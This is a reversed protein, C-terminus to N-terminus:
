EPGRRRLKPGVTANVKLVLGVFCEMMVERLM